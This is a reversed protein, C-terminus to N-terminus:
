KSDRLQRLRTKVRAIDKKCKRVASPNFGETPSKMAIRFNMYERKLEICMDSLERASKGLLEKFKM